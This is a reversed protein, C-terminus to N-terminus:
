GVKQTKDTLIDARIQDSADTDTAAMTVTQLRAAAAMSQDPADHFETRVHGTCVFPNEANHGPLGDVKYSFIAVGYLNVSDFADTALNNAQSNSDFM